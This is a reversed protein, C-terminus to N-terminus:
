AGGGAGLHYRQDHAKALQGQVFLLVGRLRPFIGAPSLDGAPFYSLRRTM